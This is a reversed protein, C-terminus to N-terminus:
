QQQQQTFIKGAVESLELLWGVSGITFPRVMKSNLLWSGEGSVKLYPRMNQFPGGM